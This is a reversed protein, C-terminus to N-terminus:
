CPVNNSIKNKVTEKSSIRVANRTSIRKSIYPSLLLFVCLLVAGGATLLWFLTLEGSKNLGTASVHEIIFDTFQPATASFVPLLKLCIIAALLIVLLLALM